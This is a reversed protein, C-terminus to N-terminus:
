SIVGAESWLLFFYILYLACLEIVAGYYLYETPTMIELGRKKPSMTGTRKKNQCGWMEVGSRLSTGPLYVPFTLKTPSHTSLHVPYKAPSMHVCAELLKGTEWCREEGQNEEDKCRIRATGYVEMESELAVIQWNWPTLSSHGHHSWQFHNWIAAIPLTM